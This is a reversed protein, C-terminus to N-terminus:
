SARPLPEPAGSFGFYQHSSILEENEAEQRDNLHTQKIQKVANELDFYKKPTLLIALITPVILIAQIYFSYRWNIGYSVLSACLTYGM